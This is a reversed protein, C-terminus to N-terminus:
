LRLYVHCIHSKSGFFICCITIQSTSLWVSHNSPSIPHIPVLYSSSFSAYTSFIGDSMIWLPIRYVSQNAVQRKIWKYFNLWIMKLIKKIVFETKIMVLIYWFMIPHVGTAFHFHWHSLICILLRLRQQVSTQPKKRTVSRPPPNRFVDFLAPVGTLFWGAPPFCRFHTKMESLSREVPPLPCFQIRGGVFAQKVPSFCFFLGSRRYSPPGSCNGWLIFYGHNRKM